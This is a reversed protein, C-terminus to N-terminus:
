ATPPTSTWASTPPTDSLANAPRIWSSGMCSGRAAADGFGNIMVDAGEGAVVSAKIFQGCSRLVRFWADGGLRGFVYLEALTPMYEYETDYYYGRADQGEGLVRACYPAVISPVQQLWRAEARLKAEALNSRKRVRIEDIELSNFSRATTVIRRSRFFTQVHGFDLWTDPAIACLEGDAAYMNLADYLDGESLALREALQSAKTFAFYGCLRPGAIAGAERDPSVVSRVSDGDVEVQAWRYGDGGMAVAVANETTLDLGQLLTDGHLIRLPRDSLGVAALAYLLAGGLSLHDPTRLVTFGLESLRKVDWESAEFSEPLTLYLDGESAQMTRAQQEYLRGLGVPLFAPPLRGFEASLEQHVYAGSNVLVIPSGASM